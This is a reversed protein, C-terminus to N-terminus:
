QWRGTKQIRDAFDRLNLALDRARIRRYEADRDPGLLLYSVIMQVLESGAIDRDREVSM